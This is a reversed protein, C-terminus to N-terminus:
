WSNISKPAKFSNKHTYNIIYSAYAYSAPPRPPRGGGNNQFIEPCVRNEPCACSALFDQIIFFIKICHFIEPCNTNKVALALQEFIRFPLLYINLVTFEPCVRNEPCACAAWFDQINFFIEICPFNEPWSQKKPCACSAWFDQIYFYVWRLSFNRAFETKLAHALQEFIRFPFFFYEICHFIERCVTEWHLTFFNGICYIWFM